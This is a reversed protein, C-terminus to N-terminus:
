KDPILIIVWHLLKNFVRLCDLLFPCNCFLLWSRAFPRAPPRAIKLCVLCYEFVQIPKPFLLIASLSILRKSDGLCFLKLSVVCFTHTNFAPKNWPTKHVVPLHPQNSILPRFISIPTMHNEERPKIGGLDVLYQVTGGQLRSYLM